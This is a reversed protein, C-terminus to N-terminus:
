SKAAHGGGFVSMKVWGRGISEDGGISMYPKAKVAKVLDDFAAVFDVTEARLGLHALLLTDRPITEEYWLNNSIKNDDLSNRAHIPLHHQAFYGFESDSMVAFQSKLREHLNSDVFAKLLNQINPTEGYITKFDYEEVFVTDPWGKGLINLEGDAPHNSLGFDALHLGTRKQWLDFKELVIPSTAWVYPGDLRRLPLCFTYATSINLAGGQEQTGFLIKTELGCDEVWQKLAGKLASDSIIPHGTTPDRSVPLDVLGDTQGIGPHLPTEAFLGLFFEKM